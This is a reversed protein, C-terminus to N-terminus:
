DEPVLIPRSSISITNPQPTAIPAARKRESTVRGQKVHECQHVVQERHYYCYCRMIDVNNVLARVLLIASLIAAADLLAASTIGARLFCVLVTM